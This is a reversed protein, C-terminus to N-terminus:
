SFTRDSRCICLAHTCRATSSYRRQDAEQSRYYAFLSVRAVIVDILLFNLITGTWLLFKRGMLSFIESRSTDIDQQARHFSDNIISLFMSLCIFVMFLIYLSFSFPGLFAASDTLQSADFKMLSMEFLMQATQPLTACESIKSVFLLHFLSLFAVFLIAFMVGFLMLEQAAYGLTRIFL